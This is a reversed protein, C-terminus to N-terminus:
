GLSMLKKSFESFKNQLSKLRSKNGEKEAKAIQNSLKKMEDRIAFEAVEIRTKEFEKVIKDEKAIGSLDRLYTRDLLEQLEAPLKKGLKKISFKGDGWGIVEEVVKVIAPNSFWVIELKKIEGELEEHFQLVLSLIYEEVRERRPVGSEEIEKVQGKLLSLKKKKELREIEEYVSEEPVGLRKALSKVYHARVVSNSIGAFAPVVEETIKRAGEGSKPDNQSIASDVLFDYYSVAGKVQERWKKSNETAVDGPDKGGSIQVVRISLDMTEAVSIARKIAEEGALDADLAMVVNRTYRAILRAQEETFASGKIAVVNKVGAQWSPIMDLEGEVLVIKDAKRVYSRNEYFGYLMAGKSYLRTEPSNIYKAGQWESAEHTPHDKVDAEMVRGSFGVVKGKHDKLPFMIRGRFRDYYGKPSRIILGVDELDAEKYGKKKMLFDSVSRWSAPSYGIEFMKIAENTIGRKKLYSLAQKGVKHEHLIWSYYESALHVVELLIKKRLDQTSPRYEALEVGVKSALEELSELFSMGEYRQLFTFVDGGEGCGFCKYTQREPSVMFSPTKESHFPCLGKFNRGAKKLGVRGEIIQVIDIKQKVQEVQDM